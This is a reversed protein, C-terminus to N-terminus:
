MPIEFVFLESDKEFVLPVEKEGDLGIGDRPNLVDGDVNIKGDKV